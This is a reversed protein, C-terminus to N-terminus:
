TQPEDQYKARIVLVNDWEKFFADVCLPDFHNGSNEHLFAMAREIEWSPKYPRESTLADFVDAVATIRGFLPIETGKIGHPYGSGDYKEHHTIAIVAATQLLPSNSGKLIEAGIEAHRRMIVMEEDTLRGPKLLIHDPTGMKGVDHMPAAGLILEQEAESLGLNRAIHCAYNAMRLLHAGTEPDRFEAARSLRHIVEQERSHIEATAKKVETSLWEAQNALHLQSKRLALMNRVRAALEIKDVPKTLFDNASLELARHRVENETDVTVMIIPIGTKGRMARFRQIFQLGNLEPMMYDVLVLDPDHTECWVLAAQPDIFEVPIADEVKKVLFSFLMVNTKDDDIILVDM